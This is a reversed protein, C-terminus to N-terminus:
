DSAGNAKLVKIFTLWIIHIDFKFSKAELYQQDLLARKEISLHDRGNVQVWGTLGSRLAATGANTRLEILKHQNYIEPRPGVLSLDGRVISRLQPLEDLSTKKLLAGIPTIWQELNKMLNTAFSPANIFISRFKPMSFVKNNREIKDSWYFIPRSSNLKLYLGIIVLLPFFFVLALICVIFDFCRKMLKILSKCSFKIWEQM